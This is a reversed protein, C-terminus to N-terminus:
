GSSPRLACMGHRQRGHEQEGWDVERRKTPDDEASSTSGGMRYLMSGQQVYLVALPVGDPSGTLLRAREGIAPPEVEQLGQAFTVQDSFFVLADAASEADAFRHVSASLFTTGNPSPTAENAVSERSANGSWGWDDLM